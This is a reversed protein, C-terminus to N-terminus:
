EAILRPRAEPEEGRALHLATELHDLYDRGKRLFTAWPPPEAEDAAAMESLTRALCGVLVGLLPNRAERALRAHLALAGIQRDLAAEASAAPAEPDLGAELEDLFDDPLRGALEAVLDPELLLRIQYIDPVSLNSVLLYDALLAQAREGAVSGVIWGDSAGPEAEVIGQAELIALADRVTARSMGLGQVFVALDPIRDGARLGHGIIWARVAEAV